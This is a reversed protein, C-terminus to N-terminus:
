GGPSFHYPLTAHVDGGEPAPLRVNANSIERAICQAVDGGVSDSAVEASSIAGRGGRSTVTIMIRVSGSASPNQRLYREYCGEINRRIRGLGRMLADPDLEGTDEPQDERMDGVVEVQEEERAGGTDVDADGGIEGMEEGEAMGGEGSADPSGGGRGLRDAELGGGTTVRTADAFAEDAGLDGVSDLVGEIGGEDDGATLVGIITEDEVRETVEMRDAEQQEAMEEPTPEDAPEPEPEPEAEPEPDGDDDDEAEDGDDDDELDLDEEEPEDVMIQAMRDQIRVQRDESVPWDRSELFVVFGVQLIASVLVLLALERDVGGNLLGGKMSAPLVPKARKPPPTVFQFLVTAEGIQVRGRMSPSLPLRYLKGKKKAMGSQRLQDLTQVKGSKAVRGEMKPTFQLYYKGDEFAFVPHSEPLNSAPVVLTNKKYNRGVKVTQAKRFLREDLIRDNQILGVRLIKPIPKKGM